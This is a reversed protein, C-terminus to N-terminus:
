PLCNSVGNLVTSEESTTPGFAARVSPDTPSPYSAGDSRM